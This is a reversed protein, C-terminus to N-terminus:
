REKGPTTVNVKQEWEELLALRAKAAGARLERLIKPSPKKGWKLEIMHDEDNLFFVRVEWEGTREAHFHPALHDLSNFFLELGAQALASVKGVDSVTTASRVYTLSSRFLHGAKNDPVEM